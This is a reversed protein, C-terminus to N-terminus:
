EKGGEEDMSEEGSGEEGSGEERSGEKGSGEMEGSGEEGAPKEGSEEEDDDAGDVGWAIAHPMVHAVWWDVVSGHCLKARLLYGIKLLELVRMRQAEGWLLHRKTSWPESAHVIM